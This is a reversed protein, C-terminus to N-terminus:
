RSRYWECVLDFVDKDEQHLCLIDTNYISIHGRNEHVTLLYRNLDALLQLCTTSCLFFGADDWVIFYLYGIDALRRCISGAAHLDNQDHIQNEFLIGPRVKAFWDISDALIAFDNGDTDLKVFCTDDGAISCLRETNARSDGPEHKNLFATGGWHTLRAAVQSGDGILCHKVEIDNPLQRVNRLLLSHFYESGEVLILKNSAHTAIIAATDGINAGVDVITGSRYKLGLYEAAVGVCKDRLPQTALLNTLLHSKPVLLEYDGCKVHLLSQTFFKNERWRGRLRRFADRIPAPVLNRILRKM